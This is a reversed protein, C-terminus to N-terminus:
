DTMPPLSNKIAIQQLKPRKNWYSDNHTIWTSFLILKILYYLSSSMQKFMVYFAHVMFM